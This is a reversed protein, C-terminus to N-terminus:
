NKEKEYENVVQKCYMYRGYELASEHLPKKEKEAENVQISKGLVQQAQKTVDAAREGLIQLQESTNDPMKLSSVQEPLQSFLSTSSGLVKEQLESLSSPLHKEQLYFYGVAGVTALVVLGIAGFVVNKIM